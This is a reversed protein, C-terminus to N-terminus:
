PTTDCFVPSLFEYENGGIRQRGRDMGDTKSKICPGSTGQDDIVSGPFGIQAVPYLTQIQGVIEFVIEQHGPNRRQDTGIYGIRLERRRAGNHLGERQGERFIKQFTGAGEIRFDAQVAIQLHQRFLGRMAVNAQFSWDYNKRFLMPFFGWPGLRMLPVFRARQDLIPPGAM